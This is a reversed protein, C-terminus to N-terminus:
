REWLRFRSRRRQPFVKPLRPPYFEEPPPFPNADAPDDFVLDIIEISSPWGDDVWLVVKLVIDRRGEAETPLDKVASMPLRRTRAEIAPGGPHSIPSPATLDRDVDLDITACGCPCRGTVRATPAQERLEAIGPAELSLMLELIEDERETLPRTMATQNADLKRGPSVRM